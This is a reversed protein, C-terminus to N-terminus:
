TRPYAPTGRAGCVIRDTELGATDNNAIGRDQSAVALAMVLSALASVFLAFPLHRRLRSYQPAAERVLSLSSYRVSFRRRRRLMWIYGGILVPVFGLFLLSGPWLVSM